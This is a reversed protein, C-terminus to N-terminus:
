QNAAPRGFVQALQKAGSGHKGGFRIVNNKQPEEVGPRPIPRPPKLRGTKKPDGHLKVATFTNERVAEVVSALLQPVLTWADEELTSGRVARATASDTPLYRLFVRLERWSM